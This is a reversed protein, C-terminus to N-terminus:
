FRFGRRRNKGPRPGKALLLRANWESPGTSGPFIWRWIERGARVQACGRPPFIERGRSERFKATASPILTAGIRREKKCPSFLCPNTFHTFRSTQKKGSSVRRKGSLIREMSLHHNRTTTKSVSALPSSLSPSPTEISRSPIKKWGNNNRLLFRYLAITILIHQKNQKFKKKM